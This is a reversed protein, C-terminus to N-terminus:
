MEQNQNQTIRQYDTEFKPIQKSYLLFFDLIPIEKWDDYKAKVISDDFRTLDEDETICFLSCFTVVRPIHDPNPHEKIMDLRTDCENIVNAIAQGTLPGSMENRIRVFVDAIQQYSMNFALLSTHIEWHPFRATSLREPSIKYIKGSSGTITGAKFDIKAKM